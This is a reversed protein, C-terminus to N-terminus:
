VNIDDKKLKANFGLIIEVYNVFMIKHTQFPDKPMFNVKSSVEYKASIFRKNEPYLCM